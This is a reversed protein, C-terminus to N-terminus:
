AAIRQEVEGVRQPRGNEYRVGAAVKAMLEPAHVRRFRSEAVRLLKWLM